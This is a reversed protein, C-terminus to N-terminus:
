GSQPDTSMSLVLCSMVSHVGEDVEQDPSQGHVESPGELDAGLTYVEDLVPVDGIVLECMDHSLHETM